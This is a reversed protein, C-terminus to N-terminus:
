ELEKNTGSYKLVWPCAVNSLLDICFYYEKSITTHFMSCIKWTVVQRPQTKTTESLKLNQSKYM